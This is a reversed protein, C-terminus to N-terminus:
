KTRSSHRPHVAEGEMEEQVGEAYHRQNWCYSQGTDIPSRYIISKVRGEPTRQNESPLSDILPDFPYFPGDDTEPVFATDYVDDFVAALSSSLVCICARKSM